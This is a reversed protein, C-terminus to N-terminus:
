GGESILAEVRRNLDYISASTEASLRKLKEGQEGMQAVDGQAALAVGLAIALRSQENADATIKSAQKAVDEDAVQVVATLVRSSLDVERYQESAAIFKERADAQAEQAIRATMWLDLAANMSRLAGLYEGFASLLEGYRERRWATRRERRHLEFQVDSSTKLTERQTANAQHVAYFGVAAALLGGLMPATIRLAELWAPTGQSQLEELIQRLVEEM